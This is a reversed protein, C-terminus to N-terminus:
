SAFAAKDEQLLKEVISAPVPKSFYYGQYEECGHERLFDLQAATEVGEAVVKMHMSHALTIIAITIAAYDRDDVVHQVFSKDIKLTDIPFRKLRNLNSYGTGFDDIAIRTRLSKLTTFLSIVDEAYSMISTETVEFEFREAERGCLRLNTTIIDSLNEQGFQRASLNIAFDLAPFGMDAWHKSQRCAEAVVWEGIPLILGTEEALPIFRDPEVLGLTPHNWRLLGEVGTIRADRISLKPQYYIELEGRALASHLDTELDLRARSGAGMAEVFFQYNSKGKAKARYMATDANKILSHRDTGDAPFLSIGISASTFVNVGEVEFPAKLAVLIKEAAEQAARAGNKAELIVTFEDGGFRTLTDSERLCGTLRKAVETLLLDGVHHGLSDNVVKFRDLDIFLVCVNNESRRALALAHDLQANFMNRNKLGTLPDHNALHQLREEAQLRLSIDQALSLISILKGNEDYLVSNYWECWILRGDKTYNGILRTDRPRSPVLNTILQRISAIDEERMFQWETGNKGLVEAETWGFITEAQASWRQVQFQNDWEIVALPSNEVHSTLVQHARQLSNQTEKLSHVDNFLAFVGAVKGDEELEAVYRVNMWRKRGDPYTIMREHVTSEGRLAKLAYPQIFAYDVPELIEDLRHGYLDRRSRGTFELYPQNAYRYREEADFYALPAPLGDTMVRMQKESKALSYEIDKLHQIDTMLTYIGIISDDAARAPVFRVQMWRSSGDPQRVVREYADPKGRLGRAFRPGAVEFAEEGIVEVVTHGDIEDARMGMLERYTRNHFRFRLDTDIFAISAPVRDIVEHALADNNSAALALTDMADNMGHAEQEFMRIAERKKTCAAYTGALAGEYAKEHDQM